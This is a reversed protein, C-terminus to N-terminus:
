PRLTSIMVRILEQNALPKVTINCASLAGAFSLSLDNLKKIAVTFESIKSVNCSMSLVAYHRTIFLADTSIFKSLDNIYHTILAERNLKAGGYLSFFHKSYDKIEAKEKRVILQVPTPLINIAQKLRIFFNERDQENLLAVDFPEIALMKVISGNRVILNDQIIFDTFYPEIDKYRKERKRSKFTLLRPVVKYIPQNDINQTIFAIFFITTVIVSSLYYSWKFLHLVHYFVLYLSLAIIITGAIVLVSDTFFLSRLIHVRIDDKYIRVNKM